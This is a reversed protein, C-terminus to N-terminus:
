LFLDSRLKSLGGSLEIFVIALAVYAVPGWFVSLAFTVISTILVKPVANSAFGWIAWSIGQAAGGIVLPVGVLVAVLWAAGRFLVPQILRRSESLAKRGPFEGLVRAPVALTFWVLFLLGPIILLILGGLIALGILLLALFVGWFLRRDHIWGFADTWGLPRNDLTFATLLPIAGAYYIALVFAVVVLALFLLGVLGQGMSGRAEPNRAMALLSMAFAPFSVVAAMGLFTNPNGYCIRYARVITYKVKVRDSISEGTQGSERIEGEEAM